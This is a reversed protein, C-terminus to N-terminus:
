PEPLEGDMAEGVHLCADHWRRQVTKTSVHLLDAAEGQTLGQYWILDFVERQEDPLAGIKEHFDGWSALHSPEDRLDSPESAGERDPAPRTPGFYHRALDILERRIQLAALRFFEVLSGPTVSQLARCLRIMANQFIDSSEEWRRLRGDARLMKRTLRILRDCAVNVLEARAAEDGARLRDLCAQLRVTTDSM